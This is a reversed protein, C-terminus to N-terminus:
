HRIEIVRFEKGIQDARGRRRQRSWLDFCLLLPARFCFGGTFFCDDFASSSPILIRRALRRSLRPMVIERHVSLLSKECEAQNGHVGRHHCQRRVRATLYAVDGCDGNLGFAILKERSTRDVAM